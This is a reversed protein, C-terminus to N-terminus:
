EDLPIIGHPTSNPDHDGVEPSVVIIHPDTDEELAHIFQEFEPKTFVNSGPSRVPRGIVLIDAHTDLAMQRLIQKVDGEKVRYDVNAVGRRSARDCLILMTFDGMEHLQQYISRVPTMTLSAGSLFEADLIHFFTLRADHELALDIARIVTNRSEQGGRVACLIHKPKKMEM